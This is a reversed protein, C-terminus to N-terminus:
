AHSLYRILEGHLRHLERPLRANRQKVVDLHRKLSSLANRHAPSGVKMAFRAASALAATAGRVPEFRAVHTSRQHQAVRSAHSARACRDARHIGSM